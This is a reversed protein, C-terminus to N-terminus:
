IFRWRRHKDQANVKDLICSVTWKKNSTKFIDARSLHHVVFLTHRHSRVYLYLSPLYLDLLSSSLLTKEPFCGFTMKMYTVFATIWSTYVRYYLPVCIGPALASHRIVKQHHPRINTPIWYSYLESPYSCKQFLQGGGGGHHITFSTWVVRAGPVRLSEKSATCLNSTRYNEIRVGRQQALMDPAGAETGTYLM